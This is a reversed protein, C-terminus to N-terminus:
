EGTWPSSSRILPPPPPLSFDTLSGLEDQMTGSMKQTGKVREASGMWDHENSTSWPPLPLPSSSDVAGLQTRQCADVHARRENTAPIFAAKLSRQYPSAQTPVVTSIQSQRLPPPSSPPSSDAIVDMDVYEEPNESAKRDDPRSVRAAQPSLADLLDSLLQESPRHSSSTLDVSTITKTSAADADVDDLPDDDTESDQVADRARKSPLQTQTWAFRAADRDLAAGVPDYTHPEDSFYQESGHVSNSDHHRETTFVDGESLADLDDITDLDLSDFQTEAITTSRMLQRPPPVTSMPLDALQSDQVTLTRKLKRCSRKPGTTPIPAIPLDSIATQSIDAAEKLPVKSTKVAIDGSPQLQLPRLRTNASREGLPVRQSAVITPSVTTAKTQTSIKSQQSSAKVSPPIQSAPVEKLSSSRTPTAVDHRGNYGGAPAAAIHSGITKRASVSNRLNYRKAPTHRSRTSGTVYGSDDLDGMAKTPSRFNYRRAPTAHKLEEEGSAHTLWPLKKKRAVQRQVMMDAFRDRGEDDYINFGPEDDGSCTEEGRSPAPLWAIQTLTNQGKEKAKLKVSSRRGNTGNGGSKDGSIRRKKRPKEADIDAESGEDSWIEISEANKPTSVFDLQTLSSQTKEANRGLLSPRPRAVRTHLGSRRKNLQGPRVVDLAGTM